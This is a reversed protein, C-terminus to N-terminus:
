CLSKISNKLLKAHEILQKSNDLKNLTDKNYQRGTLSLPFYMKSSM